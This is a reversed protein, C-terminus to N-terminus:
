ISFWSPVDKRDKNRDIYARYTKKAEALSKENEAKDDQDKEFLNPFEFTMNKPMTVMAYKIDDDKVIYGKGPDKRFRGLAIKTRVDVVPVNYIKTLYNKIDHKTMEMSCQFHVINPQQKPTPHVLKMWFNPLFVRLQPNGRQYIPYWRTSM